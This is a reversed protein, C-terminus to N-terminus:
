SGYAEADSPRLLCGGGGGLRVVRLACLASHVLDPLEIGLNPVDLHCGIGVARSHQPVVAEVVLEGVEAELRVALVQGGQAFAQRLSPADVRAGNLRLALLLVQEVQDLHEGELHPRGLGEPHVLDRRHVEHARVDVDHLAALEVGPASLRVAGGEDASHPPVLLLALLHDGGELGADLGAAGQGDLRHVRDGGHARCVPRAGHLVVDHVLLRRPLELLEPAARFSQPLSYCVHDLPVADEAREQPVLVPGVRPRGRAHPAELAASVHVLARDLVEGGEHVHPGHLQVGHALGLNRLDACFDLLNLRLQPRLVGGQLQRVKHVRHRLAGPRHRRVPLHDERLVAGGEVDGLGLERFEKLGQRLGGELHARDLREPLRGGGGRVVIGRRCVAGAGGHEVGVDGLRLGSGRIRHIRDRQVLADGPM